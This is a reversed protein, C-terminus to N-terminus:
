LNPNQNQRQDLHQKLSLKLIELCLAEINAIDLKILNHISVKKDKTNLVVFHTYSLFEPRPMRLSSISIKDETRGLDM